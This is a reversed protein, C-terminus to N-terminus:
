TTRGHKIRQAWLDHADAKLIKVDAFDGVKLGAAKEVYVLGDIDPADASSRALATGDARVEDVLVGLTRGVKAKLRGASINEQLQILRSCREERVEQPM